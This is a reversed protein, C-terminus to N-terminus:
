MPIASAVRGALKLGASVFTMGNFRAQGNGLALVKLSGARRALATENCCFTITSCPQAGGHPVASVGYCGSDTRNRNLFRPAVKRKGVSPPSSPVVYSSSAWFGTPSQSRTDCCVGGYRAPVPCRRERICRPSCACEGGYTRSSPPPPPSESSFWSGRAHPM